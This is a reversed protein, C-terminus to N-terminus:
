LDFPLRFWFATLLEELGPQPASFSSWFATLLEVLPGLSKRKLCKNIARWRLPNLALSFM